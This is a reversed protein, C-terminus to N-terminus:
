AENHDHRSTSSKSHREASPMGGGSLRHFCTDGTMDCRRLREERMRAHKMDSVSYVGHRGRAANVLMENDAPVIGAELTARGALCSQCLINIIAVVPQERGYHRPELPPPMAHLAMVCHWDCARDRKREDDRPMTMAPMKPSPRELAQHQADNEAMEIIGRKPARYAALRLFSRIKGGISTSGIFTASM